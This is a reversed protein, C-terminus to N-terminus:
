KAEERPPDWPRFGPLRIGFPRLVKGLIHTIMDDVREPENYFTLMPPVIRCGLEDAALLNRLHVRGLPTERPVLVLERREKLCVDAARLLLNDSYGHVIGALTKMSCPIVIMGDTEVSGSAVPSTFERIGCVHDALEKVAGPSTGCEIRLNSEAAETMVLFTEVDPMPRLAELLRVGLVVGDAGSIGIILKKM